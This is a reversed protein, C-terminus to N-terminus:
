PALSTAFHDGAKNLTGAYAHGQADVLRVINRTWPGRFNGHVGAYNTFTAASWSLYKTVAAPPATYGVSDFPTNGFDGTVRAQRFLLGTGIFYHGHYSDGADTLAEFVIQGHARDYYLSLRAHQRDPWLGSDGPTCVGATCTEGNVSADNQSAILTHGQYVNIGPSWPHHPGSTDTSIGLLVTKGTTSKLSVSGGVGLNTAAFLGGNRLFITGAAYRFNAGTVAHGTQGASGIPPGPTKIATAATAPGAVTVVAALVGAVLAPTILRRLM